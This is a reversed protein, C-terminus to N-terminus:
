PETLLASLNEHLHACTLFGPHNETGELYTVFFKCPLLKIAGNVNVCQNWGYFRKSPKSTYSAVASFKWACLNLGLIHFFKDPIHWTTVPEECSNLGNSPRFVRPLYLYNGTVLLIHDWTFHNKVLFLRQKWVVYILNTSDTFSNPTQVRLCYELNSCTWFGPMSWEKFYLTWEEFYLRLVCVLFLCCWSLM